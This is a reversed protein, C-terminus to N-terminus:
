SLTYVAFMGCSDTVAIAPSNGPLFEGTTKYVGEFSIQRSSLYHHTWLRMENENYQWLTFEPIGFVAFHKTSRNFKIEGVAKLYPDQFVILSRKNRTDFVQIQGDGFGLLLTYSDRYDHTYLEKKMTDYIIASRKKDTRIDFIHLTGTDTTCSALYADNPHWRVSGVVDKCPYLSNESKRENKQIDLYLRSIDTVFVNGDFGGSLVLNRNTDSLGIERIIDKHFEPFLVIEEVTFDPANLSVIGLKSGIAFVTHQPDVWQLDRVHDSIPYTFNVHVRSKEHTLQGFILKNEGLKMPDQEETGCVFRLKGDRDGFTFAPRSLSPLIDFKSGLAMRILDINLTMIIKETGSEAEDHERSSLSVDKAFAGDVQDPRPFLFPEPPLASPTLAPHLLSHETPSSIMHSSMHTPSVPNHEPQIFPPLYNMMLQEFSHKEVDKDHSAAANSSSSGFQSQHLVEVSHRPLEVHDDMEVDAHVGDGAHSM